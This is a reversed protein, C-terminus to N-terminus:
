KKSNQSGHGPPKNLDMYPSIFSSSWTQNTQMLKTAQAIKMYVKEDLTADLFTNQVDMQHFHSSKSTGIAILTRRTTMKFVFAFTEEYDIGRTQSYYKEM